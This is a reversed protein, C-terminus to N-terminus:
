DEEWCPFDNPMVVKILNDWVNNVLCKKKPCMVSLPVDPLMCRYCAPRCDPNYTMDEKPVLEGDVEDYVLTNIPIDNDKIYTYADNNSWDRIPQASDVSGINHKCHWRLQNPEMNRHPKGEVYRFGQLMCDWPYDRTGKPQLYIDNLACLYEDEIFEDPEYLRACLAMDGSGLQYQRVVEFVDNKFFISCRHAPYDHCVLDWSDIIQNAYRYKKPFYPDRHFMVHWKYGMSRCLHLVCISDKGFGTMIIPNHYNKDIMRIIDKSREIKEKM